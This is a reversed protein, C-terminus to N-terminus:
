VYMEVARERTRGDGRYKGMTMKRRAARRGPHGRKAASSTVM